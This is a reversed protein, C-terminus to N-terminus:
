YGKQHREQIKKKTKLFAKELDIHHRNAITALCVLLDGIEKELDVKIKKRNKNGDVKRIMEAVEGFEEILFLIETKEDVPKSNKEWDERVWDQAEKLKTM